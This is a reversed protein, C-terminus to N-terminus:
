VLKMDLIVPLFLVRFMGVALIIDLLEILKLKPASTGTSIKRARTILEAAPLSGPISKM